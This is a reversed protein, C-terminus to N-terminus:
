TIWNVPKVNIKDQLVTKRLLFFGHVVKVPSNYYVSQM